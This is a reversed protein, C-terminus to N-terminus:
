RRGDGRGGRGPDAGGVRSGERDRRASPGVRRARRQAALDAQSQRMQAHRLQDRLDREQNETQRQQMELEAVRAEAPDIQASLAALEEALNGAISGQARLVQNAEAQQGALTEFRAEKGTIERVRERQMAGLEAVRGQHSQLQGASVAAEARLRALEALLDDSALAALGRRATELEAEQAALKGTLDTLAATLEAERVDLAALDKALGRRREDHWGQTQRAREAALQVRSQESALRGQAATIEDREPACPM